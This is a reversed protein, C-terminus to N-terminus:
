GVLRTLLDGPLERGRNEVVQKATVEDFGCGDVLVRTAQAVPL